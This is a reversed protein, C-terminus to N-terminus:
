NITAWVTGTTIATGVARCQLATQFSFKAPSFDRDLGTNQPIRFLVDTGNVTFEIDRDTANYIFLQTCRRGAANAVLNTFTTTLTTLAGYQPTLPISGLSM